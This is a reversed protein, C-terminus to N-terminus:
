HDCGDTVMVPEATVGVEAVGHDGLSRSMALGPGIGFGGQRPSHTLSHTRSHTRAHTLSHTLSHTRSYFPIVRSTALVM